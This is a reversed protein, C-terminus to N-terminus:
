IRQGRMKRRFNDRVNRWAEKEHATWFPDIIPRAPTRIGRRTERRLFFYKRNRSRASMAGGINAFFERQRKTPVRTFGEQLAGALSKLRKSVLPGAWGVHVELPDRDAVFYRVTPALRRLPTNRGRHGLHKAIASLPVFRRGGPSGKRIEQKLVKKLRFAEVRVATNLAKKQRGTVVKLDRDLKKLGRVTVTLM